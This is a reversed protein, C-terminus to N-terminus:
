AAVGLNDFYELAVGRAGYLEILQSQEPAVYATQPVYKVQTASGYHRIRDLFAEMHPAFKDSAGAGVGGTPVVLGADRVASLMFALRGMSRGVREWAPHDAPLDEARMGYRKELAPGSIDAEFEDTPDDGFILHGFEDPNSRDTRYLGTKKDLEVL